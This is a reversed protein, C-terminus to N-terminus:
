PNNDLCCQLDATMSEFNARDSEIIAKMDDVREEAEGLRAEALAWQLMHDPSPDLCELCSAALAREICWAIGCEQEAIELAKNDEEFIERAAEVAAQQAECAM